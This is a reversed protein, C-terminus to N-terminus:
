NIRPIKGFRRDDSSAHLYNRNRIVILLPVKPSGHLINFLISYLQHSSISVLLQICRFHRQYKQIKINQVDKFDIYLPDYENSINILTLTYICTSVFDWGHCFYQVQDHIIDLRRSSYM